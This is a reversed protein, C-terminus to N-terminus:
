AGTTQTRPPVPIGLGTVDQALFTRNTADVLNMIFVMNRKVFLLKASMFLIITGTTNTRHNFDWSINPPRWAKAKFCPGSAGDAVHSNM